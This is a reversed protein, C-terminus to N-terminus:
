AVPSPESEAEFSIPSIKGLAFLVMSLCSSVESAMM